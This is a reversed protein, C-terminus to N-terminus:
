ATEGSVVSRESVSIHPFVTLQFVIQKFPALELMKWLRRLGQQSANKNFGAISHM